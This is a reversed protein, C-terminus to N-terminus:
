KSEVAQHLDHAMRSFCNNTTHIIQSAMRQIAPLHKKIAELMARERAANHDRRFDEVTAATSPDMGLAKSAIEGARGASVKDSAKVGYTVTNLTHHEHNWALIVVIDKDYTDALSKAALVPINQYESM